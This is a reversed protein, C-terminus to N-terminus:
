EIESPPQDADKPPEFADVLRQLSIDITQDIRNVPGYEERYRRELFWTALSSGKGGALALDTMNVVAQGRARDVAVAFSAYPEDGTERGRKIWHQVTKHDISASAAAHALSVTKEIASTIKASVEPTLKTVPGIDGPKRKARQRKEPEPAM